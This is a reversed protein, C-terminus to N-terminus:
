WNQSKMQINNVIFLQDSANDSYYPFSYILGNIESCFHLSLFFVLLTTYPFVM